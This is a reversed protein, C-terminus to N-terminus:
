QMSTVYQARASMITVVMRINNINNNNNNIKDNNSDNRVEGCRRDGIGALKTYLFRSDTKTVNDKRV